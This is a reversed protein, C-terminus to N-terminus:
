KKGSHGGPHQMQVPGGAAPGTQKSGSVAVPGTKTSGGSLRTPDTGKCKGNKGCTVLGRGSNCSYGGDKYGTYVGGAADCHSKISGRSWTGSLAHIASAPEPLVVIPILATSLVALVTLNRM